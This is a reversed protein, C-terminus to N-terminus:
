YDEESINQHSSGQGNQDDEEIIISDGDGEIVISDGDGNEDLDIDHDSEADLDIDHESNENNGTDLEGDDIELDGQDEQNEDFDPIDDDDVIEIDDQDEQDEEEEGDDEEKSSEPEDDDVEKPEEKQTEQKEAFENVVEDLRKKAAKDNEELISRLESSDKEPPEEENQDDPIYSDIVDMDDRYRRDKLHRGVQVFTEKAKHTLETKTYDLGKDDVVTQYIKVIDHYDPFRREKNVLDQIRNNVEPVRSAETKFKKDCARGFSTKMGELNNIKKQITMFRKKYKGLRIYASDEEDDLDCEAQELRLIERNCQRLAKTLKKLHSKRKQEKYKDENSSEVVKEAGNSPIPIVSGPKYRDFEDILEKTIDWVSNPKRIVKEVLSALKEVFGHLKIKPPVQEIWTLRKTLKKKITAHEVNNVYGLIENLFQKVKSDIEGYQAHKPANNKAEKDDDLTITETPELKPTFSSMKKRATKKHISSPEGNEVPSISGNEIKSEEDSPDKEIKPIKLPPGNNSDGDILDIEIKPLKSPPGHNSEGDSLDIIEVEDSM